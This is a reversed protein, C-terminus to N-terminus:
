ASAAIGAKTPAATSHAAFRPFYVSFVSGRGPESNVAVRAGLLEALLRVIALGLGLGKSRDREPNGLQTFEEFIEARAHEPVGIGTDWVEVRVGGGENRCGVLVRGGDTYRIANAVLNRILRTALVADNEIVCNTPVVTLRLGKAAAQAAWETEIQALVEGLRVEGWKPVVTGAQLTSIDLLAHLLGEGAALAQTARDVVPALQGGALRDNLVDIFLRLAQFPQRLDHSAAALFRSKAMNAREAADRMRELEATRERVRQELSQNVLRLEAESPLALARPILPWLLVATAISIVANIAKAIGEAWYIPQWLTVLGLLHTTGCALVFAAFLLVVWRHRLQRRKHVFYLLALPISYYAVATLADSAAHLWLLTSDLALCLSHPLLNSPMARVWPLPGDAADYCAARKLRFFREGM